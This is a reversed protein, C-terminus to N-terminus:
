NLIISKDIANIAFISAREAINDPTGDNFKLTHKCIFDWCPMVRAVDTSDKVPEIVYSVSIEYVDFIQKEIGYDYLSDSAYKLKFYRAFVDYAEEASIMNVKETVKKVVEIPQTWNISTIGNDDVYIDIDGTCWNYSYEGSYVSKSIPMGDASVCFNFYYSNEETSSKTLVFSNDMALAFEEAIKQAEDMTINKITKEEESEGNIYEMLVQEEIINDPVQFSLRSDSNFGFNTSIIAVKINDGSIGDTKAKPYHLKTNLNNKLEEETPATKKLKKYEEIETLYSDRWEEFTSYYNNEGFNEPVDYKEPHKIMDEYTERYLNIYFDYKEKTMIQGRYNYIDCDKYLLEIAKDVQDQTIKINKIEYVGYYDFRSKIDADVNALVKDGCCTITETIHGDTLVPGDAQQQILSNINDDTKNVILSDEPTSQCSILSIVTLLIIIVSTYKKLM